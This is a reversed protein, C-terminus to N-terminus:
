KQSIKSWKDRTLLLAFRMVDGAAVCNAIDGLEEGREDTLLNSFENINRKESFPIKGDAAIFLPM